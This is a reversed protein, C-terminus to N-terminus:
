RERRAMELGYAAAGYIGAENALAAKIIRVSRASISFSRSLAIKEAPAILIDGLEAMGGGYIILEPNFLNIISTFGVGLYFAAQAVVDQAMKDGQRAAAAIDEAKVKKEGKHLIYKLTSKEGRNLRELADREVASGSVLMELCGTNGCGCKPGHAEVTIHGIEAAAGVAGLYLRGDIIIGGGIGTGITILVIDKYGRGAGYRHEGLAAASADNLVFTKIGFKAQFMEAIPADQWGPLHPSPTVVVGRGTDVGGAAAIVIAGTQAPTLHNGSLLASVTDAVRNFICPLGQEAQTGIVEKALMKGGGSFLAAMIKTGGIDIAIVPKTDSLSTNM